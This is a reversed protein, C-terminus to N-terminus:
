GAPSVRRPGAVWPLGSITSSITSGPPGGRGRRWCTWILASLLFAGGVSSPTVIFDGRWWSSGFRGALWPYIRWADVIAATSGNRTRGRTRSVPRVAIVLGPGDSSTGDVVFGRPVLASPRLAQRM